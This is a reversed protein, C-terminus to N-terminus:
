QLSLPSTLKRIKYLSSARCACDYAPIMSALRPILTPLNPIGVLHGKNKSDVDDLTQLILTLRAEKEFDKILATSLIKQKKINDLEIKLFAFSANLAQMSKRHREASVSDEKEVNVILKPLNTELHQLINGGEAIMAQANQIPALTRQVIETPLRDLHNTHNLVQTSHKDSFKLLKQTLETNRTHFDKLVDQILACFTEVNEGYNHLPGTYKKQLNELFQDQETDTMYYKSITALVLCVIAPKPYKLIFYALSTAVLRPNHRAEKKVLPILHQVLARTNAQIYNYATYADFSPSKQEMGVLFFPLSCLLLAGPLTNM